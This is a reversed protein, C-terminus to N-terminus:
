MGRLKVRETNPNGLRLMTCIKKGFAFIIFGSTFCPLGKLFIFVSLLNDEFIIKPFTTINFSMNFLLCILTVRVITTYINTDNWRGTRNEFNLDKTLLDDSINELVYDVHLLNSLRTKGYEKQSNHRASEKEQHLNGVNEITSCRTEGKSTKSAKSFKSELDLVRCTDGKYHNSMDYVIGATVGLLVFYYGSDDICKYFPSMPPLKGCSLIIMESWKNDYSVDTFMANVLFILYVALILLILKAKHYPNTFSQLFPHYNRLDFDIIHLFFYYVAFGMLLGFCVQDLSHVGLVMRSCGVLTCLLLGSIIGTYYYLSDLSKTKRDIEFHYYLIEFFMLFSPISTLVHNSPYGYGSECDYAHIQSDLWFPRPEQLLLKLWSCFLISVYCVVAHIFAHYTNCLGFIFSLMLSKVKKSGFSSFVRMINILKPNSQLFRILPISLLQLKASFLYQIIIIFAILLSFVLIKYNEKRTLM